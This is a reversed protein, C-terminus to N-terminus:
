RAISQLEVRGSQLATNKLTEGDGVPLDPLLYFGYAQANLSNPLIGEFTATRNLIPKPPNRVEFRGKFTGVKANFSLSQLYAFAFDELRPLKVRNGSSLLVGQMFLGGRINSKNASFVLDEETSTSATLGFLLEHRAPPTYLGGSLTLDHAPFGERYPREKPNPSLVTKAWNLSGGFTPLPLTEHKSNLIVWGHISGQLKYLDRHIPFAVPRSTQYLSLMGSGTIATGDALKGKWKMTGKTSQTLCLYGSGGPTDPSSTSPTLSCTYYSTPYHFVTRAHFADIQQRLPGTATEQGDASQLTATPPPGTQIILTLAPLSKGRPITCRFTPATTWTADHVASGKFRWVKGGHLLQGTFLTSYGTTLTLLSGLGKGEDLAANHGILAQHTGAAPTPHITWPVTSIRSGSANFTTVKVPYPEAKGTTPHLGKIASPRGTVLGTESGSLGPPLSTFEWRTSPFDSEFQVSITEGLYHAYGASPFLPSPEPLRALQISGPRLTQPGGAANLVTMRCEYAGADGAQSQSIQLTPTTSRTIRGGDSLRVDNKYWAYSVGPFAPGHLTSTLSVNDGLVFWQNPPPAQAVLISFLASTNSAGGAHTVTLTYRGADTAQVSPLTFVAEESVVVDGKKWVYATIPQPSVIEPTFTLSDGVLVGTDSLATPWFVPPGDSAIGTGRTRLTIQRQGLPTQGQFTFTDILSGTTSPSFTMPVELTQGPSLTDTQLDLQFHPSTNNLALLGTIARQGPNFLRLIGGRAQGVPVPGFTIEPESGTLSVSPQDALQFTLEPDRVLPISYLDVKLASPLNGPPGSSFYLRHDMTIANGLLKFTDPGTANPIRWTTEPTGNTQWIEQNTGQGTKQIFYLTEAEIHLQFVEPDTAYTKLITRQSGDLNMAELHYLSSSASVFYLREGVLAKIVCDEGPLFPETHGPGAQGDSRWLFDMEDQGSGVRVNFIVGNSVSKLNFLNFPLSTSLTLPIETCRLGDESIYLHGNGDYGKYATFFLRSSNDPHALIQYVGTPLGHTTTVIREPAGGTELNLRWLVDQREAAIYLWEDMVAINRIYANYGAPIQLDAVRSVRGDNWPTDTAWLEAKNAMMLVFFLRDNVRTFASLTASSLAQDSLKASVNEAEDMMFLDLHGSSNRGTFFLHNNVVTLNSPTSGNAGPRVDKVLITGADTGDSSWLEAGLNPNLGRARFYLRGNFIAPDAPYSGSYSDFNKVLVPEPATAWATHTATTLVSLAIPILFHLLKM